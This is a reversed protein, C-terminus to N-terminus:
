KQVAEKLIETLGQVSKTISKEEANLIQLVLMFSYKENAAWFYRGQQFSYAGSKGAADFSIYPIRESIGRIEMGRNVLDQVYTDPSMNLESDQTHAQIQLIIGTRNGNVDWYFNCTKTNPKLGSSIDVHAVKSQVNFLKKIDDDTVLTCPDPIILEGNELINDKIADEQVVETTEDTTIETSNHENKCSIFALLLILTYMIGSKELVIKM